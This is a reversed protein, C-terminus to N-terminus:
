GSDGKNLCELRSLLVRLPRRERKQAGARRSTVPKHRRCQKRQFIARQEVPLGDANRPLRYAFHHEVGGHGAVLFDEGIRGVRALDDRQGIGVDAVGPGIGFVHFGGAHVGRAEHDAIQREQM